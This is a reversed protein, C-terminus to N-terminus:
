EEIVSAAHRRFWFHLAGFVLVGVVLMASIVSFGMTYKPSDSDPFLYQVLPNASADTM